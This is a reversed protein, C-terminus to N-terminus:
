TAGINIHGMRSGEHAEHAKAIHVKWTMYKHIWSIASPPLKEGSPNKICGNRHLVRRTL